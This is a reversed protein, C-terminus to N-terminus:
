KLEEDNIINNALEHLRKSVDAPSSIKDFTVMRYRENSFTFIIHTNFVGQQTTVHKLTIMM